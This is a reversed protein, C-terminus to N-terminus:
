FDADIDENIDGQNYEAEVHEILDIEDFSTNTCTFWIDVQSRDEFGTDLVGTLDTNGFEDIYSIYVGDKIEEKILNSGAVCSWEYGPVVSTIKLTDTTTGNEALVGLSTLNVAALLLDRISEATAGVGSTISIDYGSITVTYTMVDIVTDVSIDVEQRQQLDSAYYNNQLRDILDEIIDASETNGDGYANFSITFKRLGEQRTEDSLSDTPTIQSDRLGYRIRGTIMRYTAYPLDPKPGMKEEVTKANIVNTLGTAEKIYSQIVLRIAKTSPV